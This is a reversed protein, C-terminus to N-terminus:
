SQYIREITDMMDALEDHTATREDAFQYLREFQIDSLHQFEERLDIKWANFQKTALHKRAMEWARADADDVVQEYLKSFRVAEVQCKFERVEGNKMAFYKVSSAPKPTSELFEQLEAGYEAYDQLTIM